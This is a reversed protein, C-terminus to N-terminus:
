LVTKRDQRRPHPSCSPGATEVWDSSAVRYTWGFTHEVLDILEAAEPFAAALRDHEYQNKMIGLYTSLGHRGLHIVDSDVTPDLCERVVASLERARRIVSRADSVTTDGKRVSELLSCVYTRCAAPRSEYITCCSGDFGVCPLQVRRSLDDSTLVAGKRRLPNVDDSPELDVAHFMTGDCCLGCDLCISQEELEM